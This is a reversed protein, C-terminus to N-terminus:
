EEEEEEEEIITKAGLSNNMRESNMGYISLRSRSLGMDFRRGALPRTDMPRSTLPRPDMLSPPKSPQEDMEEESISTPPSSLPSSHADEDDADHDDQEDGDEDDENFSSDSSSSISSPPSIPSSAITPSLAHKSEEQIIMNDNYLKPSCSTIPSCQQACLDIEVATTPVATTCQHPPICIVSLSNTVNRPTTWASKPKPPENSFSYKTHHKSSSVTHVSPSSTRVFSTASYSLQDLENMPPVSVSPMVPQHRNKLSSSRYVPPSLPLHSPTPLQPPPPTPISMSSTITSSSSSPTMQRSPTPRLEDGKGFWSKVSTLWGTKPEPIRQPGYGYTAVSKPSIPSSYSSDTSLSISAPTSSPPVETQVAQDVKRAASPDLSPKAHPAELVKPQHSMNDLLMQWLANRSNGMTSRMSSVATADFGASLLASYLKQETPTMPPEDSSLAIDTFHISPLSARQKDNANSAYSMNTTASLAPASFRTSRPSLQWGLSNRVQPSFMAYREGNPKETTPSGYDRHSSAVTVCDEDDEPRNSFLSDADSYTSDEDDTVDMRMWPHNLIQDTTLRDAPNLKLVQRILDSSESSFYSPIQYELNVIKRQMIIESDDDFPLEGALLTYLIVGLSWVDIEPGTHRQRQIVEPASYALSGCFTELMQHKESHRAFGFDCIKVNDNADLLVNELKLDRHIIGHSHCYKVADVLQRFWFQARKETCRGLRSLADFLEGNPCYESVIHIYSETAIIEYMRVVNPHILQRHHHIERAMLSAHQKSIRKVAVQQGTLEHIGLKVKGYTGEGITDRLTYNGVTTMKHSSLEKLLDNYDAALKAKQNRAISTRHSLM